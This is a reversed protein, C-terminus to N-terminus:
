KRKTGADSRKARWQGNKNRSRNKGSTPGTKVVPGHTYRPSKSNTNSHIDPANDIISKIANSIIEINMFDSVKKEMTAQWAFRLFTVRLVCFFRESEDSKRSGSRNKKHLIIKQFRM